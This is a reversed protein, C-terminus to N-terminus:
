ADMMSWRGRDGSRAAASAADDLAAELADGDAVGPGLPRDVVALPEDLLPVAGAPVVLPRALDPLRWSCRHAPTPGLLQLAELHGPAGYGKNEHWGYEPHRRALAATVTGKGVATPGSLVTLDARSM